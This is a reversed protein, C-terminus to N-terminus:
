PASQDPGSSEATDRIWNVLAPPIPVVRALGESWVAANSGEVQMRGSFLLEGASDFADIPISQPLEAALAFSSAPTQVLLAIAQNGPESWRGTVANRRLSKEGFVISDVREPALTAVTPLLFRTPSSLLLAADEADVVFVVDESIVQAIRSGDSLLKGFRIRQPEDREPISLSLEAQVSFLGDQLDRTGPTIQGLISRAEVRDIAELWAQVAGPDAPAAVPHVMEWREHRSLSLATQGGITVSFSSPSSAFPIVQSTRFPDLGFRIPEIFESSVHFWQQDVFIKPPGAFDFWVPIELGESAKSSDSSFRLVHSPESEPETTPERQELFALWREVSMNSLRSNGPFSSVWQDGRSMTWGDGGLLQVTSYQVLDLSRAMVLPAPQGWHSFAFCIGGLLLFSMTTRWKM